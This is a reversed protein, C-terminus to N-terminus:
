CGGEFELSFKSRGDAECSLLVTANYTKGKASKCDKLRVRGDRLLKDAVHADLRKGLRKFFANDKWLVFRCERNECFWGKEREVVPKGCNPCVGIIKNKMLANAGKAAETTTVLSSIMEKIETMFTEPEMEGREIQLLKAEWDATMDASQMEEPMVTILAKGKDTPLLVKTKKNGKRELFGKQVLKEITAARTAPTGIGQREVGEPMSDASATEMAHLLTDETFHKPPSTKGEKVSANSVSLSQGESLEPLTKEEPREEPEPANKLGAHYASDLRRWGPRQITKGKAAFEQGACVLTAATEEYLHPEAVACLLRAAVLELVAKEGVPLASLDADRLNRTPIVAHHDTVKKDNIVAEPNCTIGIGKRFPMANATLNVLVPLGEAMDSTLYRSDTRPYTCLKKEYLNQLYDLTQQATFGLLRNADRQLTTLDYLAPPKESKEKRQAQKVVASGGRCATQLEKAATKDKMRAGVATFGPLELAVTYFPEPQFAEIEAERQVILALTPSMVRGINLTRRYLVSFLRTANIGVLWDAKARCLAAQHLGDYDAGPRLNEFGERIASDEMSSIWLRKMPKKCGALEYVNRFILEGERGADTPCNESTVKRVKNSSPM